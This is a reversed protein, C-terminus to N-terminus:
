PAAPLAGTESKPGLVCVEVSADRSRPSVYFGRIPGGEFQTPLSDGEVFLTLKRGGESVEGGTVHVDPGLLENPLRGGDTLIELLDDTWFLLRVTRRERMKKM